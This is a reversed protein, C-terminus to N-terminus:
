HKSHFSFVAPDHLWIEDLFAFVRAALPTAIVEERAFVRQGKELKWDYDAESVVMFSEVEFKYLVSVFAESGPLVILFAMGHRPGNETWRAIYLAESQDALVATGTSTYTHNGCCSCEGQRISQQALIPM